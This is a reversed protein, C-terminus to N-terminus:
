AGLWRRLEPEEDVDWLTRLQAWQLGAEDLRRRTAAMLADRGWPMGDFLGPVERRLGVLAYGGDETPALVSAQSNRVGHLEGVEVPSEEGM